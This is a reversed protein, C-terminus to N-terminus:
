QLPVLRDVRLALRSTNMDVLLLCCAPDASECFVLESPNQFEEAKASCNVIPQKFDATPTASIAM